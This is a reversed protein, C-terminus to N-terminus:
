NKDRPPCPDNGYSRKDAIKGDKNHEVVEAQQNRGTQNAFQNADSKRDFNKLAKQSNAGKVQWQSQNKNWVVHFEKYDNKSM